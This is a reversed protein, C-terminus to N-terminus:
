EKVEAKVIEGVYTRPMGEIAAPAEAKKCTLVVSPEAAGNPYFRVVYNEAKEIAEYSQEPSLISFVVVKGGVKGLSGGANATMMTMNFPEEGVVIVLKGANTRILDNTLAEPAVERYGNGSTSTSAEPKESPTPEVQPAAEPITQKTTIVMTGSAAISKEPQKPEKKKAEAEATLSLAEALNLCYDDVFDVTKRRWKALGPVLKTQRKNLAYKDIIWDEAKYKEKGDRYIYKIKEIKLNCKEAECLVFLQYTIRTRDLTLATSTFVIWEDGLGVIQGKSLDALVVRSNNDNKKLRETMWKQVRTFIEEKAMGPISFDKSFVVRGDVEPVAGALYKTDDKGDAWMLSPVCLMILAVFIRTLKKM